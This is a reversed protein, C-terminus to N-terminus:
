YKKQGVNKGKKKERRKWEPPTREPHCKKKEDSAHTQNSPQIQPNDIKGLLQKRIETMLSLTTTKYEQTTKRLQVLYDHIRDHQKELQTPTTGWGGKSEAIVHTLGCIKDTRKGRNLFGLTILAGRLLVRM